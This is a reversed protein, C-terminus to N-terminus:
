GRNQIAWRRLDPRGPLALKLILRAYYSEVTRPSLGLNSAIAPTSLGQALLEIVAQEKLSFDAGEAQGTGDSKLKAEVRPSLYREGALVQRIALALVETTERKTVYGSAGARLARQVHAADEHMSYVLLPLAPHELRLSRLLGFADADGLSLDVLALDPSTQGACRLASEPEEAEGCVRILQRRLLLRLGYRVAPHDEVILVKIEPAEGATLM